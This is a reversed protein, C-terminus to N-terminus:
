LPSFQVVYSQFPISLNEKKEVFVAGNALKVEVHDGATVLYDVM